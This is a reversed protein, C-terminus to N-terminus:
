RHCTICETMRDTHIDYKELLRKSKAEDNRSVGFATIQDPERLRSGPDRHCDLCWRMTLPKAQRMLPMEDVRGHCSECGVGNEVHAQHNFYVYDPMDNVRTWVLPKDEKLSRRVPELMDANTWLQSHCTMCTRTDPLGAFASREVSTHCYRCDIGLAGVHHKHSFPVPQAPVSGQGTNYPSVNLLLGATTGGVVVLLLGVMVWHALGNAKPRFIQPM